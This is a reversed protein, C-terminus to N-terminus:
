SIFSYYRTWIVQLAKTVSKDKQVHKEVIWDSAKNLSWKLLLSPLTTVQQTGRRPPSSRSSPSSRRRPRRSSPRGSRGRGRRSRRAWSRSTGALWQTLRPTSTRFFLINYSMCKYCSHLLPLWPFTSLPMWKHVVWVRSRTMLIPTSFILDHLHLKRIFLSVCLWFHDTRHCFKLKM